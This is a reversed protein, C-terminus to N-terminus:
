HRFTEWAMAPAALFARCAEAHPLQNLVAVRIPSVGKPFRPGRKNSKAFPKGRPRKKPEIELTCLKAASNSRNKTEQWKSM